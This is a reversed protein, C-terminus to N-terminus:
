SKLDALIKDRVLQGSLTVMPMGGGPNVSGGVFYLNSIDKSRQPIKFGLNKFRDAVVGYISGQNSYYRQEIDIPTWYEECVIHKRLDTLGMRELKILVRERMAAYDEATLPQEPNLHPIHPLIKIIECGPPAQTPDSKVPAVLYITPDDSLKNDHFVANFHERPHESYFFNHHALQPYITDVGLHLVLGSCSPEFRQLRKAEKENNLLKKYAPIVEMNSVVIDASIVTGDLLRVGTARGGHQQIEAVESNVRINVGLEEALKQLGEAIGYMGGKVYWLGYGFQIYPLLNMLAPADYPSSGVYKIFYNLVDVLKPDKIFRRVGQDMSRFVDFELLSRVPGYHKLLEWFSDLGHAFYGQETIECLKKSYALFEEFEKATNPGLKDLEQKMIVPDSSLDLTSGDEFFNRWHPEVTQINIYDAMNKGVRDFLAQFIHPMTLISPGLDFTFGDKELINLKGGVKDNKELLDVSFGETALSIAASLGGLGAGIVVVHKKKSM